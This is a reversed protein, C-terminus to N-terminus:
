SESLRSGDSQLFTVVRINLQVLPKGAKSHVTTQTADLSEIALYSKASELQDIFRYIDSYEGVATFQLAGEMPLGAKTPQVSYSMGPISINVKNGLESIAIALTPFQKQTPLNRWLLELDRRGQAAREQLRRAEISRAYAQRAEDYSKELIGLENQAPILFIWRSAQASLFGILVLGVLPLLGHYAPHSFHARLSPPLQM